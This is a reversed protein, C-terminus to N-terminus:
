TESSCVITHSLPNQPELITSHKTLYGLYTGGFAQLDHQCRLPKPQQIKKWERVLYKLSVSGSYDLFGM